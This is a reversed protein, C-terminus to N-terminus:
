NRYHDAQRRNEFPGWAIWIGSHGTSTGIELARTYGNQVILEYLVKGDTEPINMDRWRNRKSELFKRVKTDPDENREQSFSSHFLVGATM